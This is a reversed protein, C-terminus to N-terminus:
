PQSLATWIRQHLRANEGRETKIEILRPGAAPSAILEVFERRDSIPYSAIGLAQAVPAFQTGHPTAVHTEFFPFDAQPVFHFIGGGDNNLVIFTLPVEHLVAARLSGLDHLMSLDGALVYTPRSIDALATGVGSAVLGDIGSAGRNAFIAVNRPILPFFSDVDRIPMSAAVLVQAGDPVAEALALVAGPESPFPVESELIRKLRATRIELYHRWRRTWEHSAPAQLRAGLERAV